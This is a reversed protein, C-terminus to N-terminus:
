FFNKFEFAEVRELINKLNGDFKVDIRIGSQYPKTISHNTLYTSKTRGDM